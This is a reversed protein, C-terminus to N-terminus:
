LVLSKRYKESEDRETQLVWRLATSVELGVRQVVFGSEAVWAEAEAGEQQRVVVRLPKSALKIPDGSEQHLQAKAARYASRAHQADTQFLNSTDSFLAFPQASIYSVM